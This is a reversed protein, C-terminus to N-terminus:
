MGSTSGSSSGPTDTLGHSMALDSITSISTGSPMPKSKLDCEGSVAAWQCGTIALIELRAM